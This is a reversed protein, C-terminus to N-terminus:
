NSKYLVARMTTNSTDNILHTKLDLWVTDGPMITYKYAGDLLCYTVTNNELIVARAMNDLSFTSDNNYYRKQRGEPVECSFM